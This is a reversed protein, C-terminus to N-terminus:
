DKEDQSEPCEKVEKEEKIEPSEKVEEATGSNSAANVQKSDM